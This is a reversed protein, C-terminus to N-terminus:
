ILGNYVLAYWYVGNVKDVAVGVGIRQITASFARKDSNSTAWMQILEEATLQRTSTAVVDKYSLRDSISTIGLNNALEGRSKCGEASAQALSDCHSTRSVTSLGNSSRWSNYAAVLNNKFATEDFREWQAYLDPTDYNGSVNYVVEKNAYPVGTGDPKTNWGAFVLQEGNEYKEYPCERLAEPTNLHIWQYDEQNMISHGSRWTGGNKEYDIRFWATIYKWQAYLTVEDTYSLTARDGSYERPGDPDNPDAPDTSPAVYPAPNSVYGSPNIFVGSGDPETNWGTFCYNERRYTAKNLKTLVGRTATQQEMEGTGGNADYTITYDPGVWCAYLTVTEGPEGIDTVEQRDLYYTGSGDARTNWAMFTYTDRLFPNKNLAFTEGIAKKQNAYGGVGGNGNYTVIYFQAEWQAYLTVTKGAAALNKVSAKDAYTTGSGDAKTNWGTFDYDTRLFANAKLSASAGRNITQNTMSGVGGNADFKVTYTQRKWQAYFTLTEGAEAIGKVSAKDAYPVGKGDAQTNWGTFTYNTRKFVNATLTATDASNIAQDDMTGTGGNADYAIVYAFPLADLRHIFAAMDARAVNALPRFEAGGGTVAWGQSVGTAALWRIEEAHAVANNVDVFDKSGSLVGGRLKYLRALFAAMDARAVPSFPRFERTGDAMIWGTSIGSEALWLIERRHPTKDSVDSFGVIGTPQWDDTVLGWLKALRFLFAAMDARAVNAFPRFERSGDKLTWGESIGSAALWQIDEYHATAATVDAFSIGEGGAGGTQAELMLSAVGSVPAEESADEKAKARAGEEDVVLSEGADGGQDDSEKSSVDELEDRWETTLGESPAGQDGLVVVDTTEDSVDALAQAALGMGMLVAILVWGFVM